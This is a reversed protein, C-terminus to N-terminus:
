VKSMVPKALLTKLKIDIKKAITAFRFKRMMGDVVILNGRISINHLGRNYPRRPHVEFAQEDEYSDATLKKIKNIVVSGGYTRSHNQTPRYLVDDVV